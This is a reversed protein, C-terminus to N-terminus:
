VTQRENKEKLKKAAQAIDKEVYEEYYDCFDADVMIEKHAEFMFQDLLTGEGKGDQKFEDSHFLMSIRGSDWSKGDKLGAEDTIEASYSEGNPITHGMIQIDIIDDMNCELLQNILEKVKM